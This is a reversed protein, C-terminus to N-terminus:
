TRFFERITDTVHLIQAETLEPYMPLSLLQGQWAHAIPFDSPKHGLYGYAPMYPLAFPYHIGTAIGKTKLFAALEDRRPARIVYLHFIHFSDTRLQPCTIGYVEALLENYKRAHSNRARNWDDIYGLKVRLVVAQIADLRSNVGEIEHVYKQLSGHNAFLRAKRALADDNTIVAGGDGYAGLNKGPYFSFTGAVGFTGTMQGHYTAFHSQACDEVLRLDHKDCVAQIAAIDAPQGYLHVAIVAKTRPTIKAEILAPDLHFYADNDVFVPKAGTETIPEATAIFTNAATIVEDGPGIGLAKLTIFIADTGNACSVCHKVGYKEAYAREFDDVYKGGIFATQDLVAHIAPDIESKLALYQAKLDVFPVNM